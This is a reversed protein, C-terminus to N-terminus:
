RERTACKLCFSEFMRHGNNLGLRTRTWGGPHRHHCPIFRYRDGCEDCQEIVPREGCLACPATGDDYVIPGPHARFAERIRERVGRLAQALRGFASPSV